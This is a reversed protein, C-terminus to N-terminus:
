IQSPPCVRAQVQQKARTLQQRVQANISQPMNQLKAAGSITAARVEECTPAVPPGGMKAFRRRNWFRLDRSKSTYQYRVVFTLVLAVLLLFSIISFISMPIYGLRVMYLLPAEIMLAIFILQMIFLTDLKNGSTWENIEFQRKAIQSDFTAADAEYKATEFLAKQTDDLDKNRVHYYAVSKITDGARLMDGHVKQFNDSHEKTVKDYLDAKRSNIFQTLRAPDNRLERIANAMQADQLTLIDSINRDMGERNRVNLNLLM